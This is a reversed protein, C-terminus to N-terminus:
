ARGLAPDSRSPKGTELHGALRRRFASGPQEVVIDYWHDSAALTLRLTHRQGAALQLPQTTPEAYDLARVQLTCPQRGANGIELVLLEGDQRAQVWPAALAPQEAGLNGAFERLFGNPGHVRLAYAGDHVAGMPVDDLQTGPLVTYYWPGGTAASTYVNFAAAAAGTNIFQLQVGSDDHVRAHM